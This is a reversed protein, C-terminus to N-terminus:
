TNVSELLEKVAIDLINAVKGLMNLPPQSKNKCWRSITTEDKGVQGALWKNTKEHEALLIKIRTKVKYGM